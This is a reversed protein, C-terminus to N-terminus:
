QAQRNGPDFVPTKSNHNKVIGSVSSYHLGFYDGIEKLTYGGSKYASIIATNRDDSTAKYEALPKSRRRRQSSPIEGLKKDGDILAQMEEVFQDSGLYVQKRLMIWPSPQGKGQAVFKKYKEIALSKRKAFAALIWETNLCSLGKVLGVTSRYSSWPSDKASRVMNARVPNLVIYRSLGLLYSDKEVLIAKYRGQFVQGVRKNMRNFTQTYMGNLQRMGKSLNSDPTEILLHYHKDMLCYGHCVWNYTGCVRELVSLFALRDDDNEYIAERHDGRSTVHYLAGAFELRLPRAM